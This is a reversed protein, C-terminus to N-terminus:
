HKKLTGGCFTTPVLIFMQKEFPHHHFAIDYEACLKGQHAQSLGDNM